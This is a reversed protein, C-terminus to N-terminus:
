ARGVQGIIGTLTGDYVIPLLEIDHEVLLKAVEEIPAAESTSVVNSNMIQDASVDGLRTLDKPGAMGAALLRLRLARRGTDSGRILNGQGIM